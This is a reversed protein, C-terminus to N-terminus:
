HQQQPKEFEIQDTAMTVLASLQPTTLESVDALVMEIWYWILFLILLVLVTKSWSYLTKLVPCFFSTKM